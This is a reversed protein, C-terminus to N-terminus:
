EHNPEISKIEKNNKLALIIGTQGVIWLEGLFILNELNNRSEFM